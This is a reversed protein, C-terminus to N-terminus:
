AQSYITFASLFFDNLCYPVKAHKVIKEDKIDPPAALLEKEWRALWKAPM